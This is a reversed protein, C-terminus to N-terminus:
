KKSTDPQKKLDELLTKVAVELQQDKGEALQDADNWVAIDPATQANELYTGQMTKVGLPPVGWRVANDQLVEWGAFTCTGPVPQGVLKGIQLYQYSYAYCHGDSYNSENALSISPKTWRFSPEYGNSRTDTSYDLFQKGSLFMALDAVLDGGGNNRTDVVMAKRNFFKGMIEEYTDRYAADNMGPIHVYGLEGNSLREVEKENRRVWRRYLLGSQEGQTIPKVRYYKTATGRQVTLLTFKGAKRNLFAAYDRDATLTDNDIALLIDGAQISIDSKDLPGGELIEAIKVGNGPYAPDPFIGLSATADTGTGTNVFSSGSHSVNLEGLMESLMESFEQNNSIHPLYAEYDRRYSNWDVGHMSRTYFSAQTRRWVHEFMCRRERDTDISMEGNIAINEQKGSLPEIKILKGDANLFINKQDKDWQLSGNGSNLTALIKTERTRLNTTWLNYGKEFRALYYLNEGDKSVLADSLSASHITLRSKRFPLNELDFKLLTDKRSTSKKTSDAKAKDDTEKQLAADEKSLRFRDWADQDLFAAYVDTQSGGSNAKANMGDRNSFWTIAKGGLIWRANGESFGSQSLNRITKGDLSVLGVEGYASGPVAYDFLLWKSDPSWDVYQDNDRMSALQASNLLSRSQRSSLTLVKLTTRDEIYALQNGDPSILPQYNDHENVVLPSEELVTAAYFFSEDPRRLRTQYIKWRNGRESAYFLSKGDPSFGVSKEADPTFTIRKTVGGEVSTVFVDGRFLFAVEKGNPSVALERAGGNVTLIQENNKKLDTHISVKVLQPAAAPLMTYLHGDYGFCLRGNDAISLFRVPHKTFQTIAKPVDSKLSSSYVNFSGGMESLYYFTDTGKQLVPNRDEGKNMTLRQHKGTKPDYLWCDRTVSSTHHKRWENEGGKKDQYLLRGDPLVKVLEAPTTLVQRVRGGTAAVQYLEPLYGAPYQRNTALDMRSGGFLIASNDTSFDYPYEAASHFTLRQPTGGAASICFIDYNGYRDSAFAIKKGDHSWVPMLDNAEHQTLQRAEGGGAAVLYIDGRYSFAITNGDPSIAPYRMWSPEDQAIGSFSAAVLLTTLFLNRM